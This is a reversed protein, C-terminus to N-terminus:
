GYIPSSTDTIEITGGTAGITQTAAETLNGHSVAVTDGTSDDSGGGGGGCGAALVATLIVVSFLKGLRYM